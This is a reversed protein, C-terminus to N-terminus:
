LLTSKPNYYNRPGGRGVRIREVTIIIIDQAWSVGCTEVKIEM